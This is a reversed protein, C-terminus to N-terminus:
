AHKLSKEKRYSRKNKGLEDKKCTEKQQNKMKANKTKERKINVVINRETKM